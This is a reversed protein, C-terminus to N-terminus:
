RGAPTAAKRTTSSPGPWVGGQQGTVGVVAIVQQGTM